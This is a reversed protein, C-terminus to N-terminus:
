TKILFFNSADYECLFSNVLFFDKGINNCRLFGSFDCGKIFQNFATRPSQCRTVYVRGHVCQVFRNCFSPHRYIGNSKWACFTPSVGTDCFPDRRILNVNCNILQPEPQELVDLVLLSLTQIYSLM